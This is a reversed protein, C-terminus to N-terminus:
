EEGGGWGLFHILRPVGWVGASPSRGEASGKKYM